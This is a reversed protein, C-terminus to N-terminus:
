VSGFYEPCGEDVRLKRRTPEDVVELSEQISANKCNRNEAWNRAEQISDRMLQAIPTIENATDLLDQSGLEKKRTFAKNLAEQIWTEIEAGSFNKTVQMLEKHKDAIVKDSDRKVRKLHIKLIELRQSVSPLDVWFISDFRGSRLMEPPISKVNNATAVIFVDEKRDQMWNLFTGFVRKSTGHGDESKMGAFSKELEDVWLVCPAIAGAISLCKRINSESEGVLSGYMKGVDMRLLPRNWAKATAKCTLSKGCGPVGVILLGKPPRLGFKRAKESFCDKRIKLWSKLNELGGIDDLSYEPDIVELLGTKRVISAKENRIITPEFKGRTEVLSKAYANEAELGTMGLSADLIEEELEASPYKINKNSACIGRLPIKLEERDPLRFNIVTIEKEIDHPIDVIPSVIVLVKGVAKFAPIINRIKRVLFYNKKLDNHFDKLFLIQNQGKNNGSFTEFWTLADFSKIIPNDKNFSASALINDKIGIQRIGEACDWSYTEYKEKISQLELCMRTLARHEEFTEIWLLPYGAVVYNAFIRDKNLIKDLM